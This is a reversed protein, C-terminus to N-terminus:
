ECTLSSSFSTSDSCFFLVSAILPIRLYSLRMLSSVYWTFRQVEIVQVPVAKCPTQANRKRSLIALEHQIRYTSVSQPLGYSCPGGAPGQPCAAASLWLRYSLQLPTQLHWVPSWVNLVHREKHARNSTFCKTNFLLFLSVIMQALEPLDLVLQVFSLLSSVDSLRLDVLQTGLAPIHSGLDTSSRKPFKWYVENIGWHTKLVIVCKIWWSDKGFLHSWFCELVDM